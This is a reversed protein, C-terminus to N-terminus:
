RDSTVDSSSSTRLSSSQGVCEDDWGGGAVGPRHVLDLHFVCM